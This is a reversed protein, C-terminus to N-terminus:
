RCRKWDTSHYLSELEKWFDKMDCTMIVLDQVRQEQDHVYGPILTQERFGLKKLIKMAGTQPRMMKAIVKKVGHQAAILYLERNMILGLGRRQYKRAVIVRLEGDNEHWNDRYIELAGSAIIEEDKLAVIRFVNGNEIQRIRERVLQQDTVNIRLYKRDSPPLSRFFDMYSKLDDMSINRIIVEIGDKLTEKKEVSMVEQWKVGSILGPM